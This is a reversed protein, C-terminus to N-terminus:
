LYALSERVSLRTARRAPFWSATISLAVILVLWVVAGIIMGVAMAGMAIILVVQLTRAKHQWLDSWIKHYIVSM